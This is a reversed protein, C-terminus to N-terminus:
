SSAGTPVTNTYPNYSEFRRRQSESYEMNVSQSHLLDMDIERGRGLTVIARQFGLILGSEEDENMIDEMKSRSLFLIHCESKSTIETAWKMPTFLSDEGYYDGAVYERFAPHPQALGSYQMVHLFQKTREQVEVKQAVTLDAYAGSKEWTPDGREHLHGKLVIFLGEATGGPRTMAQNSAIRLYECASCIKGLLHTPFTAFWSYQKLHKGWLSAFVEARLSSFSELNGMLEQHIQQEERHKVQKLLYTRVHAQIDPEVQNAVLYKMCRKMMANFEARPEEYRVISSTIVGAVFLLVIWTTVMLVVSFARESTTVAHIDGYGATMMTVICYYLSAVYCSTLSSRDFEATTFWTKGHGEGITGLWFWVCSFWHGVLVLLSFHKAIEFIVWVLLNASHYQMRQIKIQLGKMRWIRSLRIVMAFCHVYSLDVEYLSFIGFPIASIVDFIFARRLYYHICKWRDEEVVGDIERAINLQFLLDTLANSESFISIYRLYRTRM